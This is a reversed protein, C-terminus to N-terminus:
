GKGKVADLLCGAALGVLSVAIIGSRRLMPELTLDSISAVVTLVRYKRRAAQSVMLNVNDEGTVALFVQADACKAKELTSPQTVDGEIAFGSFSQSLQSFREPNRDIITVSYGDASLREAVAAGLRGCGAVVVYVHGTKM